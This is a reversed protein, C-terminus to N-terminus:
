YPNVDLVQLFYCYCDGTTFSEGLHNTPEDLLLITLNMFLAGVFAIRM